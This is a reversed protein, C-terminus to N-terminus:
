IEVRGRPYVKVRGTICQVSQIDYFLVTTKLGHFLFSVKHFYLKFYRSSIVFFIDKGWYIYIIYIYIPRSPATPIAVRKTSSPGPISHRHPRSKGCGDLGVRPGVLGGVCYTGPRERPYLPWPTANVVWGM